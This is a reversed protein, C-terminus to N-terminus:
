KRAKEFEPSVIEVSASNEAQDEVTLMLREGSKLIVDKTAVPVLNGSKIETVYVSIRRIKV